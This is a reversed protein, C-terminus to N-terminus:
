PGLGRGSYRDMVNFVIQNDVECDMGPACGLDARVDNLDTLGGAMTHIMSAAFDCDNINQSRPTTMPMFPQAAPPFQHHNQSPQYSYSGPVSVPDHLNFSPQHISSMSSMSGQREIPSSAYGPMQLSPPTHRAEPGIRSSSLTRHPIPVDFQQPTHPLGHSPPFGTQGYLYPSPQHNPSDPSSPTNRDSSGHNQNFNGAYTENKRSACCQKREDLVRELTRVAESTPRYQPETPPDVMPSKTLADLEAAGMGSQLLLTRLRKNEDVVGRAALQVEQTVQVGESECHRLRDELDATYDKRRARSRRQNDRIRALNEANQDM